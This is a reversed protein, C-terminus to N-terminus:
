ERWRDGLLSRQIGIRLRVRNPHIYRHHQRFNSQVLLDVNNTWGNGSNDVVVGYAGGRSTTTDDVTQVPAATFVTSTTGSNALYTTSTATSGSYKDANWLSGTTDFFLAAPVATESIPAGNALVPSLTSGGSPVSYIGSGALPM